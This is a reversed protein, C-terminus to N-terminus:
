FQECESMTLLHPTQPGSSRLNALRNDRLAAARLRDDAFVVLKLSPAPPLLRYRPRAIHTSLINGAAIQRKTAVVRWENGDIFRFDDRGPTSMGKLFIGLYNAYKLAEKASPNGSAELKGILYRLRSFTGIVDDDGHNRVYHVPTGGRGMAFERDVAIGLLGYKKAHGRSASLRLETFCTMDAEYKFSIRGGSPTPSAGTLKEKPRTMWFGCNVIDALYDVYKLRDAVTLRSPVTGIDKGTWHVLFDPRNM